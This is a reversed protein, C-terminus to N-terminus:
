FDTKSILDQQIIVFLINNVSNSVNMRNKEMAHEIVKVM